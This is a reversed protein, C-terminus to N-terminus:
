AAKDQMRTYKFFWGKRLNVYKNSHRCHICYLSYPARTIILPKIKGNDITCVRPRQDVIGGGMSFQLVYRTHSPLVITTTIIRTSSIM